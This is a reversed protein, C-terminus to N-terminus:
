SFKIILLVTLVTIFILEIKIIYDACKSKHYENAKILHGQGKEVSRLCKEINVDIRDVLEGQQYVITSMQDFMQTIKIVNQYIKESEKSNEIQKIKEEEELFLSAGDNDFLENNKSYNTEIKTKHTILKTIKISTQKLKNLIHDSINNIIIDNLPKNKNKNNFSKITTAYSKLSNLDYLLKNINETTSGENLNNNEFIKYKNSSVNKELRAYRENINSYKNNFNFYEEELKTINNDNDKTDDEESLSIISNTNNTQQIVNHKRKLIKESKSKKLIEVFDIYLGLTNHM